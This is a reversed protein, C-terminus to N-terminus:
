RRTHRKVAVITQWILISYWIYFLLSIFEMGETLMKKFPMISLAFMNAYKSTFTAIESVTPNISYLWNFEYGLYLVFYIFASYLFIRLSRWYDQGFNSIKENFFFLVKEAKKGEQTSLEDKYKQMELAFYKNADLYNGVSDLSNKISRFTERDTFVPDLVANLFNPQTSFNAHTINLGDYFHTNRFNITNLFTVYKFEAIYEKNAIENEKGFECEEFGTFDDFIAKKAKFNKFHTGYFDSISKFNCNDLVFENICNNKFEFKDHFVSSQMNVIEINFQNLVFRSEEEFTCHYVKLYKASGKFYDGNNFLPAKVDVYELVLEKRFNCDSFQSNNLSLREEKVERGAASAGEHFTCMQYIVNSQNSLLAYDHIYWSDFFECDQFFCESETIEIWSLYFKCYNFHIRGLKNLIAKYDEDDREDRVPFAIYNFVIKSEKLLNEVITKKKEDFKQMSSSIKFYKYLDEVDLKTSKFKSSSTIMDAIYAMLYKKFEALTDRNMHYDKQAKEKSCHLVCENYGDYKPLTCGKYGTISCLDKDTMQLWRKMCGLYISWGRKM